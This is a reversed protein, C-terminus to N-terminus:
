SAVAGLQHIDKHARTFIRTWGPTQMCDNDVKGVLEAKTKSWAYNMAGAQGMNKKSLVVDVIRPDKVGDKLFDATEDSSANDWLYLDFEETPDELLRALTKKTYELRNHTVLVITVNMVM